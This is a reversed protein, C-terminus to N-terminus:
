DGVNGLFVSLVGVCQKCVGLLTIENSYFLIGVGDTMRCRAWPAGPLVTYIEEIGFAPCPRLFLLVWIIPYILLKRTGHWLGTISRRQRTRKGQTVNIFYTEASRSVSQRRRRRRM